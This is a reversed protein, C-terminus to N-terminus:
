QKVAQTSDTTTKPFFRLAKSDNLQSNSYNCYRSLAFSSLLNFIAKRQISFYKEANCITSFFLYALKPSALLFNSKYPCGKKTIVVDAENGLKIYM